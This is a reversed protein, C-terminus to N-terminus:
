EMIEITCWNPDGVTNYIIHNEKFNERFKEWAGTNDM